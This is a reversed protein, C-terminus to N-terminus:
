AGEVVCAFTGGASPTITIAANAANIAVGNTSEITVASRGDLTIRNATGNTSTIMLNAGNTAAPGVTMSASNTNDNGSLNHLTIRNWTTWSTDGVRGNTNTATNTLPVTVANTGTTTVYFAGNKAYGSQSTRVGGPGLLISANTSSPVVGASNGLYAGGGPERGTLELSRADDLALLQPLAGVTNSAGVVSRTNNLVFNVGTTAM